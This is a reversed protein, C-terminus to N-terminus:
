VWIITVNLTNAIVANLGNSFCVPLYNMGIAPTIVGTISTTTGTSADDYFRITGSTTSNVYFGIMAGQGSKVNASATLNTYSGVELNAIAM